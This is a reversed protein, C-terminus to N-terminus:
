TQSPHNAQLGSPDRLVKGGQQLLGRLEARSKAGAAETGAPLPRRIGAQFSLSSALVTPYRARRQRLMALLFDPLPMSGEERDKPRFGLDLKERVTLTKTAWDLDSWAAFQVEQKRGGTCLFFKLMDREDQDAAALLASFEDPRYCAVVKETYTPWDGRSIPLAANHARFFARLFTIRNHITRPANGKEKLRAIYRLVDKRDLDELHKKGASEAFTQLTEGYAEATKASKTLRTDDLFGAIAETLPSKPTHESEALLVGAARADMARQKRDRVLLALQPDSGVDEWVRKRNAAYRLTYTAGPCHQPQGDILAFCPRLRGNGAFVPSLYSRTGNPRHVRLYLRVAKSKM